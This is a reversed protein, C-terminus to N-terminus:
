NKDDKENLYKWYRKPLHQIHLKMNKRAPINTNNFYDKWLLSTLEESNSVLDNSLRKKSTDINQIFEFSITQVMNLDYYLGYKRKIDYIIWKQDTFRNKYFNAILPLVNFDPEAPAYFIGDATEQFRIFATFRHRERGVMRNMKSVAMVHPNGFNKEAGQPNDFIYRAFDFLDQFTQPVESLYARYFKMLWDASMKKKLGNWVREAKAKDNIITHTEGLMTPQYHKNWVLQVKGPKYEYYEFIATLLGEMSGDFVYTVM